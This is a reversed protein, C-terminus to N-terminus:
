LRLELSKVLHSSMKMRTLVKCKFDKINNFMKVQTAITENLNLNIDENYMHKLIDLWLDNIFYLFTSWRIQRDLMHLNIIQQENERDAIM